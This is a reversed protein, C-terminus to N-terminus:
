SAICSYIYWDAMREDTCIRCIRAVKVGLGVFWESDDVIMM